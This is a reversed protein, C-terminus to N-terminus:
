ASYIPILGAKKEERFRCVWLLPGTGKPASGVESEVLTQSCSLRPPDCVPWERTTESASEDYLMGPIPGVPVFGLVGDASLRYPWGASGDATDTVRVDTGRSAQRSGVCYIKDFSRDIFRTFYSAAM